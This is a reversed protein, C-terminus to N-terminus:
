GRLDGRVPIENEELVYNQAQGQITTDSVDVVGPLELFRSEIQSIRVTLQDSEEWAEALERFYGDIMTEAATQLDAWTWTGSFSVTTVIDLAVSQVGVVTVVHGIPALGLGDGNNQMPDILTQIDDLQEPSPVGYASTIVTLKVTGGGAWARDIKVGGVGPISHLKEKYDARNGGFANPDLSDMYRKRLAETTEADEGPTILAAIQATELGDVYDFPILAGASLNGIEGATECELRYSGLGLNETVVYIVNGAIFRRDQVDVGAPSFEGRIMAATAPRPYIGRAACHKILYQRSATDAFTEQLFIDLSVYMKALEMAAPAVGNYYPSGERIDLGDAAPHTLLSKLIASGTSADYLLLGGRKM